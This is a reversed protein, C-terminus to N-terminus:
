LLGVRKYSKVQKKTFRGPLLNSRQAIKWIEQGQPLQQPKSEFAELITEETTM